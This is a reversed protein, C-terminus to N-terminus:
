EPFEMYIYTYLKYTKTIPKNSKAYQNRPENMEEKKKKIGACPKNHLPLGTSPSGIWNKKPVSLIKNCPYLIIKSEETEIV